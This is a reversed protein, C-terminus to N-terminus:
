ANKTQDNQHLRDHHSFGVGAVDTSFGKFLYLGQEKAAPFACAWAYNINIVHKAGQQIQELAATLPAHQGAIERLLTGHM